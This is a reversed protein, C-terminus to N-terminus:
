DLRECIFSRFLGAAYPIEQRIELTGTSRIMKSVDQNYVCGKGGAAAAADATADQYLGLVPNSSRSNELLLLQGNDQRKKVIQGMQHLCKVAGTNGMVCLSFSDVVTDFSEVGFMDVLETTADARVMKIPVGKLNPLSEVRRRAQQLMGDSIDVLTLSTLQSQQYKDLNLGTGVGIELVNGRARGLLSTRAEEIGLVNSAEGGDLKDYSEAYTDYQKSAEAPSLAHVISAPALCSAIGIAAVKQIVSRRQCIELLTGKSGKSLALGEVGKSDLTRALFICAISVLQKRTCARTRREAAPNSKSRKPM